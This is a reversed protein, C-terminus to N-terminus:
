FPSTAIMYCVGMIVMAPIIIFLSDLLQEKLEEKKMQKARLGIACTNLKTTQDM